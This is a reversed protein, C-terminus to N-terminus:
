PQIIRIGKLFFGDVGNRHPAITACVATLRLTTPEFGVVPALKFEFSPSIQSVPNRGKQKFSHGATEIPFSWSKAEAGM